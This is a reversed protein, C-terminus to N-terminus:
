LVFELLIERVTGVLSTPCQAAWAEFYSELTDSDHVVWTNLYYIAEWPKQNEAFYPRLKCAVIRNDDRLYQEKKLNPLRSMLWAKFDKPVIADSVTDDVYERLMPAYSSM